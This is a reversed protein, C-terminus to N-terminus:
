GYNGGKVGNALGGLFVLVYLVGHGFFLLTGRPGKRVAGVGVVSRLLTLFGIRLVKVFRRHYRVRGVLNFRLVTLLFVRVLLLCQYGGVGVIVIFHGIASLVRLAQGRGHGSVSFRILM